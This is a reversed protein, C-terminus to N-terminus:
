ESSSGNSCTRLSFTLLVLEGSFDAEEIELGLPLDLETVSCGNSFATLFDGAMPVESLDDDSVVDFGTLVGLIELGTVGVNGEKECFAFTIM